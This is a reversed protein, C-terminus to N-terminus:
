ISIRSLHLQNPYCCKKKWITPRIGEILIKNRCEWRQNALINRFSCVASIHEFHENHSLQRHILNQKYWTGNAMGRLIRKKQRAWTLHSRRGDLTRIWMDRHGLFRRSDRDAWRSWDQIEYNALRIRRLIRRLLICLVMVLRQRIHSVYMRQFARVVIM